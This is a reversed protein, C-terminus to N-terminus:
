ETPDSYAMSNSLNFAGTSTSDEVFTLAEAVGATDPYAAQWAEAADLWVNSRARTGVAHAMSEDGNSIADQLAALAERENELKRARESADRRLLVSNADTPQNGRLEKELSTKLGSIYAEQEAKIAKIQTSTEEALKALDATKAADSLRDHQLIDQRKAYYSQKISAARDHYGHIRSTLQNQVSLPTSKAM